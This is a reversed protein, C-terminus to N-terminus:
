LSGILFYLYILLDAKIWLNMKHNRTSNGKLLKQIQSNFLKIDITGNKLVPTTYLLTMQPDCDMVKKAFEIKEDLTLDSRTIDVVTLYIFYEDLNSM